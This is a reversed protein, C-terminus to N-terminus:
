CTQSIAGIEICSNSGKAEERRSRRGQESFAIFRGGVPRVSEGRAGQISHFRHVAHFLDIKSFAVGEAGFIRTLAKSSAFSHSAALREIGFDCFTGKVGLLRELSVDGLQQTSPAHSTAEWPPPKPQIILFASLVEMQLYEAELDKTPEARIASARATLCARRAAADKPRVFRLKNKSEKTRMEARQIPVSRILDRTEKTVNPNKGREEIM